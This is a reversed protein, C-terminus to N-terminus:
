GHKPPPSQRRRRHTFQPDLARVGTIQRLREYTLFSVLWQAGLSLNFSLNEDRCRLIIECRNPSDPKCPLLMNQWNVGEQPPDYDVTLTSLRDNFFDDLSMAKAQVITTARRFGQRTNGEIIVLDDERIRSKLSKLEAPPLEVEIEGSSDILTVAVAGRERLARSDIVRETLIGAIRVTVDIRLDAIKTHSLPLIKLASEHLEYYTGSFPFGFAQKEARLIERPEWPTATALRRHDGFLDGVATRMRLAAPITQKVAARNPHLSDLAGASVLTEILGNPANLTESLRGCFDFLDTYPADGRIRVIDTAVAEGVGRIAGLGYRITSKDEAFFDHRSQNIDPPSVTLKLRKTESVLVQLRDTSGAEASMVAAMFAAPHRAKLYATRYSLLAYAAAHSKNFGYGAFAEISEFLAAAQPKKMKDACGKIFRTRQAAMEDEKKKGMARRLLDAEALSYGAALRAIEMVQEQYVCVGYTEGLTKEAEPPFYTIKEEGHKRRIYTDAYGSKLPGPRFLAMLAVIDEFRDPRLRRMLERMGASECQFVGITDGGSYLRYVVPDDLPLTELSFDAPVAGTQRLHKEAHALITLTRLGLFDFKVLGIKEVDIMDFQSVLTKTDAAMYGPCFRSLPEPAILVGGAHTGINRPLGEMRLSLDILTRNEEQKSLDAFTVSEKLAQDLTVNIGPPVARAIRDCQGYPMGLVRGVDRLAGRAGIAGFTVIQSVKDAGYKKEVYRIVEDRGNVCFDVDFDPMSVRAPNLFREFLLGFAIPDLTTIDLAYAVLSGAGSGRGPGVPIGQQKAWAIFDMVILFYDAFAMKIITDLEYNLREDYELRKQPPLSPPLKKELGAAALQRLKDASSPGELDPLSPLHLRGFSFDFNCRKAIEGANATAGPYNAFATQMEDATLMHPKDSLPQECMPDNRQHGGAICLRLELVPKDDPHACQIPHTAVVPLDLKDAIDLTASIFGPDQNQWIELYLRDPFLASLARTDTHAREIKDGALAAHLPGRPGGSLAIIGETAAAKLPGISVWGDNQHMKSLLGSLNEYGQQNACLLLLHHERRPDIKLECGIIPKVGYRRCQEYFKVAGFLCGTDTLALAPFGLEAARAVVGSDGALRAAGKRVDFESHLRLHAFDATM